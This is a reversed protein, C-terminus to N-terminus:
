GQAGARPANSASRDSQLGLSRKILFYGAALAMLLAAIGVLVSGPTHEFDVEIIHRGVAIIAVVIVAEVRIEREQYYVKFTELLELGLLVILVGGFTKDLLEHLIDVSTVHPTQLILGRVFLFCLFITAVAIAAILLTQLTALIIKELRLGISPQTPSHNM